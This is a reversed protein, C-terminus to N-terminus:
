LPGIRWSRIPDSLSRVAHAYGDAVLVTSGFDSHLDPIQDKGEM